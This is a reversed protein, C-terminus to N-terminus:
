SSKSKSEKKPPPPTLVRQVYIIYLTTEVIAIGIAGGLSLIIRVGLENTMTRSGMYIATFVAVMSLGINVITVIHGQIQKLEGPRISFAYKENESTIVSAVMSAYERNSQEDKLKKLRAEREAKVEPDEEPKPEIFVSTGKVLEHFWVRGPQQKSLFNCSERLLGLSVGNKHDLSAKAAIQAEKRFKPCFNPDELASQFLEQMPKTLTLQM